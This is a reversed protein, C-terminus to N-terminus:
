NKLQVNSCSNTKKQNRKQRKLRLNQQKNILLKETESDRETEYVKKEIKKTKKTQTKKDINQRKAIQKIHEKIYKNEQM